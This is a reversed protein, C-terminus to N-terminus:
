CTACGSRRWFATPSRLVLFCGRRATVRLDNTTTAPALYGLPRPKGDYASIREKVPKGDAGLVPLGESDRKVVDALERGNSPVPVSRAGIGSLGSKMAFVLGSRRAVVCPPMEYHRCVERM